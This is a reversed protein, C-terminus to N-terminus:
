ETLCTAASSWRQLGRPGLPWPLPTRDSLHHLLLSINWFLQPCYLVSFRSVQSHAHLPGATVQAGFGFVPCFHSCGPTSPTTQSPVSGGGVGQCKQTDGLNLCLRQFRSWLPSMMDYTSQSQAEVVLPFSTWASIRNVNTFQKLESEGAISPNSLSAGVKNGM